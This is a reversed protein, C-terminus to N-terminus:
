RPQMADMGARLASRSLRGPPVLDARYSYLADGFRLAFVLGRSPALEAVAASASAGDSIVWDGGALKTASGSYLATTVGPANVQELLSASHGAPDIGYRVARPRRPRVVANDYVTLTGDGLLRVDHQGGFGGGGDFAPDNLVTLNTLDPRITGGLKWIIRGSAKDVDYIADEHRYSLVVDNGPAGIGTSLSFASRDPAISNFHYPDGGRCFGHWLPAVETLPIHAATDWSWLLSGDPRLEEIVPDFISGKAPADCPTLDVRRQEYVAVFYDGNPLLRFEHPDPPGHPASYTRVLRGDLSHEAAKDYFKAAQMEMLEAEHRMRDLGLNRTWWVPRRKLFGKVDERRM